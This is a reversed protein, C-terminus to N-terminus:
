IIEIDTVNRADVTEGNMFCNIYAEGVLKRKDSDGERRLIIPVFAGALIWVEDSEEVFQPAIGLYNDDTRVLRRGMYALRFDALIRYYVGNLDIHNENSQDIIAQIMDLTPILSDEETSLKSLLDIYKDMISELKGSEQRNKERFTPESNSNSAIAQKDSLSIQLVWVYNTILKPFALRADDAAPQGDYNDKILARWFQKVSNRKPETTTAIRLLELLDCFKHEDVIESYDAAIKAITNIKVGQVRLIGDANIPEKWPLLDRSAYWPGVGDDSRPIGNLPEAVPPVTYDPVWSPLGPLKRYSADEVLSLRNLDGIERIVLFSADTYLKETTRQEKTTWGGILTWPKQGLLAGSPTWMGLVGFVRDDPNTANFVRGNALLKELTLSQIKDVDTFIFQNRIKNTVFRTPPGGSGVMEEVKSNLLRDMNMAMLTM